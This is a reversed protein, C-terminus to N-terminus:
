TTIMIYCLYNERSLLNIIENDEYLFSVVLAAVFPKRVYRDGRWM